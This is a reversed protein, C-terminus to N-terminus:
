STKLVKLFITVQKSSTVSAVNFAFIDGASFSTTWGTLTSSQNKTATTMTIPATASIKDAAVPHTAGADFATYTTKWLDISVSGSEQGIISWGQITGAYDFPGLYRGTAGTSIVNTGDGIVIAIDTTMPLLAKGNVSVGTSTVSTNVSANGFLFGGVTGVVNAGIAITSSNVVTPGITWGFQNGIANVTANGMFISATDFIVNSGIGIAGTNVTVDGVRVVTSNAFVNGSANGILLQNADLYLTSGIALSSANAVVSGVSITSNNVVSNGAVFAVSNIQTNVSANGVSLGTNLVALNAGVFIGTSNQTIFVASTNGVILTNNAWLGNRGIFPQQTAVSM